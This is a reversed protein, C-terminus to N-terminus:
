RSGGKLEENTQQREELAVYTMAEPGLKAEAVCEVNHFWANADLGDAPRRRAYNRM